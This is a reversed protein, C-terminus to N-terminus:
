WAKGETPHLSDLVGHSYLSAIHLWNILASQQPGKGGSTGPHRRWADPSGSSPVPVHPTGHSLSADAARTPPLGASVLLQLGGRRWCAGGGPFEFEGRGEAVSGLGTVWAM